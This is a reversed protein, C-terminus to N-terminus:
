ARVVGKGFTLSRLWKDAGPYRRTIVYSNDDSYKVEEEIPGIVEKKEIVTRGSDDYVPDNELSSGSLARFAYEATANKLQTPINPLQQGDVWINTRPFYLAQPNEPFERCGMFSSGFNNDIYDTASVISKEIEQDTPPASGFTSYDNGRDDHYDKFEQVTIYANADDLGTGDEVVFAM